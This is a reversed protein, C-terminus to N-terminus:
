KKEDPNLKLGLENAISQGEPTDAFTKEGEKHVTGPANWSGNTFGSTALLDPETTSIAGLIMKTKNEIAEPTTAEIGIVSWMDKMKTFLKEDTGAKARIASDVTAEIRAKEATTNKEIAEQLALGNDYLAKETVSLKAVIDDNLKRFQSFEGARVGLASKAGALETELATKITGFETEKAQVEEATYVEIEENNDNLVKIM